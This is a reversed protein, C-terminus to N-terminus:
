AASESKGHETQFFSFSYLPMSVFLFSNWL